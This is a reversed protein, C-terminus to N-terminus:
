RAIMDLQYHSRLFHILTNVGQLASRLDDRERYTLVLPDVHNIPEKNASVALLQKKLRMMVLFTFAEGITDLEHDSLIQLKNLRVMKTWTTGGMIGSELALLGIGRTLAFLGGKKLDLKGRHAGKKEVLLRGFMGLPPKFRVINRAMNPFFISNKRTCEEIHERLEKELSKDGHLVRLDQFVGFNVTEDPGPSNIWHDTLLKWETLSHCWDPNSAMMNGPCLPVGVSELASVIREAFRRVEAVKDPTFNDRYVIANDQDTRLTQEERGESGLVLFAAGEPLRVDHVCDLIFILRQTFTDNFNAILQILSQTDANTKVAYHLMDIMKKGILHLQELTTASEIEQVLYLPSRTQIRLLDTDTMVGFLLGLEDIVVLRHINNKAMLFIAKFLYDSNRITILDTKMVDRVTLKFIDEVADAILNRLDRLSIIGVPKQDEIAVIGSINFTKLIRTMEVLGIDPSCTIAPRHCISDVTIFFFSDESIVPM